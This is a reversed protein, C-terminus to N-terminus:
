RLAVSNEAAVLLPKDDFASDIQATSTQIDDKPKTTTSGFPQLDDVVSDIAATTTKDCGKQAQTQDVQEFNLDGSPTMSLRLIFPTTIVPDEKPRTVHIVIDVPQSQLQERTIPFQTGLGRIGRVANNFGLKKWIGDNEVPVAFTGLINRGSEDWGGERHEVHKGDVWKDYTWSVTLSWDQYLEYLLYETPGARQGDPNEIFVTQFTGDGPANEIYTSVLLGDKDVKGGVKITTDPLPVSELEGTVIISEEVTGIQLVFDGLKNEKGSVVNVKGSRLGNFGELEITLVYNNAPPLGKFKFRGQDDSTAVFRGQVRDSEAFIAAGPLPFGQDDVIRGTLNGQLPTSINTFSKQKEAPVPDDVTEPEHDGEDGRGGGLAGGLAGGLLGGLAGGVLGGATEKVKTKLQAGSGVESNAGVTIAGNAPPRPCAILKKCKEEVCKKLAKILADIRKQSDDIKKDLENSKKRLAAEQKKLDKLKKELEKVREKMRKASRVGRTHEEIIKGSGDRTTVRVRGGGINEARITLGSEPDRGEAFTGKQSEIQANLAAIRKGIQGQEIQNDIAAQDVKGKEAQLQKMKAKEKALNDAIPQCEPCPNDVSWKPEPKPKPKAKPKPKPKPPTRPPPPPTIHPLSGRGGPTVAPGPTGSGGTSVQAKKPPNCRRAILAMARKLARLNKMRNENIKKSLYEGQAELGVFTWSGFQQIDFTNILTFAFNQGGGDRADKFIASLLKLTNRCPNRLKDWNNFLHEIAPISGGAVDAGIARLMKGLGDAAAESYAESPSEASETLPAILFVAAAIGAVIMLKRLFHFM